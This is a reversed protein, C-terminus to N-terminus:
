RARRRYGAFLIALCVLLMDKIFLGALMRRTDAPMRALAPAAFRIGLNWGTDPLLIQVWLAQGARAVAVEKGAVTDPMGALGGAPLLVGGAAGFRLFPQGLAEGSGPDPVQLGAEALPALWDLSVDVALVGTAVGEGGRRHPFLPFCYTVAYSGPAEGVPYPATWHPQAERTDCREVLAAQSGPPLPKLAGGPAVRWGEFDDPSQEARPRFATIARVPTDSPLVLSLVTPTLPRSGPPSCEAIVALSLAAQEVPTLRATVDSAVASVRSRATETVWSTRAGAVLGIQQWCALGEILALLLGASLWFRCDTRSIRFRSPLVM